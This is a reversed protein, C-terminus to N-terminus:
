PTALGSTGTGTTVGIHKHTSLDITGDTVTAGKIEGSAELNGGSMSVGPGSIIPASIASASVTGTATLNGTVNVIPATIDISTAAELTATNANVSVADSEVTVSTAEVSVTEAVVLASDANVSVASATVNVEGESFNVTLKNEGRNFEVFSGNELSMRYVGPSVGESPKTGDNYIAGLIVGEVSNEDMLVAVQENIDFTFSDKDKLASKTLFQLPASVIGDDLFTVRAYGSEPLIETINGFRLM